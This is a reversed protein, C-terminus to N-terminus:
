TSNCRSLFFIIFTEDCHVQSNYINVLVLEYTVITACVSLILKRTLFFFRMGSLAITDNSVEEYFRKTENNWSYPPVACLVKLPKKSEDNICAACFSVVFARMILFILSFWFYIMLLYTPLPRLSQFLQKCIFFLNNSFSLLIIHAIRKDVVNVLDCLRRYQARRDIWFQKPMHMGNARNLDHNFLKFHMTLGISIVVIFVDLFNWLFTSILSIFSVSTAEWFSIESDSNFLFPVNQKILEVFPNKGMQCTIVHHMASTISLLHEILALFLVSLSIVRIQLIFTKKQKECILFLSAMALIFAIAISYVTRLATWKFKLNDILHSKVGLVPMVGFIQGVILFPWIADRFSGVLCRNQVHNHARPLWNSQIPPRKLRPTVFFKKVSQPFTINKKYLM